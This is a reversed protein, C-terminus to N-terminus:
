ATIGSLLKELTIWINRNESQIVFTLDFTRVESECQQRPAIHDWHITVFATGKDDRRKGRIVGTHQKIQLQKYDTIVRDGLYIDEYSMESLYLSM